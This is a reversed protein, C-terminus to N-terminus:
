RRMAPSRLDVYASLYRNKPLKTLALRILSTKGIRRESYVFLRESNQMANVLDGLEKKRNCFADRGVAGGYQFPNIMKRVGCLANHTIKHM